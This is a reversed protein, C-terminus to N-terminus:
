GKVCVVQRLTHVVEVLDSQAAMVADIDKYAMPIEDIVAADKRCEVGRTAHQQDAVTFRRKAESRSMTRGAGHSCSCFSEPNGKGRVIFSRAGMSGPIIGLEGARASVAGKRTVLVDAGFHHEKQVYNHHCNVAELQAQFPKRLVRQAAALVAEMMLERNRRAYAQAWSVAYIYDAYHASGEVLYALDRDPLNALHQRMDQQALTIFTTGIANGIGRSGSHLMFWVSQAEDLCVEIFHNGTGLTGLHNRHNARALHPYKDTIRRFGPAMEAWAADVHAPANGWAGQDRRGGQASRGHPVAHEIASRMQGLNDPLDSATLSTKVAMMGCGIDVGVAAPIVAGVTPIVSGITSGKGLHVDPMVALHRFIFPMRATNVLQERAAGEVPVGRTWLKVPKGAGTDLVDYQTKGSM